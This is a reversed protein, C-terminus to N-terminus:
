QVTEKCDTAPDATDIQRPLDPSLWDRQTIKAASADYQQVADICQKRLGSYNIAYYRDGPNAAKDAAAQDLQQDYAKIQGYLAEFKEQASIRNGASQNIKHVDGAGKPGAILVSIGWSIGSLATIALLGTCIVGVTRVHERNM